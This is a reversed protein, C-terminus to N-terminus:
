FRRYEINIIHECYEDGSGRSAVTRCKAKTFPVVKYEILHNLTGELFGSIAVCYHIESVELEEGKKSPCLPCNYDRVIIKSTMGDIREEVKGKLKKNGFFKQMLEKFVKFPKRNKPSWVMLIRQLIINGIDRLDEEAQEPGRKSVLFGVVEPLSRVAVMLSVKAEFLDQINGIRTSSQM